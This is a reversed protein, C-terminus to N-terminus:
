GHGVMSESINQEVMSMLALQYQEVKEDDETHEGNGRVVPLAETIWIVVNERHAIFEIMAQYRKLLEDLPKGRKAWSRALDLPDRVPIHAVFDDRAFFSPSSGFHEYHDVGLHEMLSRTGSYPVSCVVKKKM